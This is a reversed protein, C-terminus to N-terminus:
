MSAQRPATALANAAIFGDRVQDSIDKTVGPGHPVMISAVKPNNAFDKLTDLYQTTVMMHMSEQPSLGGQNMSEM